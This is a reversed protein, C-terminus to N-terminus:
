LSFGIVCVDDVQEKGGKWNLFFSELAEKQEQPKLHAIGTLQQKFQKTMMKKGEPGGFQDAYGDTSLIVLDNQKLSYEHQAYEQDIPTYGGIAYKTPKIEIVEGNRVIYLPRNAGAYHLKNTDLDLRVFALDMGDRQKNTETHQKLADKIANNLQKLVTSPTHGTNDHCIQQLMNIGVMSMLAGPVGHGTCDACAIYFQQANNNQKFWFFDGSVVDKPLYLVFSSRVAKTLIGQEPLFTTQIGKAYEISQLIEQKKDSIIKNQGQLQSNIKKRLNNQKYLLFAIVIIVLGIVILLVIYITKRKNKLENIEAIQKLQINGAESRAYNYDAELNSITFAHLDKNIKDNLENYEKQVEFLRKHDKLSKYIETYGLLCDKRLELFDHYVSYRYAFDLNKLAEKSENLAGKSIGIRLICAAINNSDDKFITKAQEYYFISSKFDKSHYFLQGLNNYLPAVAGFAKISKCTEIASNFYKVASDFDSSRKEREYKDTYFSGLANETRLMIADSKIEKGIQMAMYIYSVDKYNKQQIAAQWGLNYASMATYFKSKISDSFKYGAYYYKFSEQYNARNFLVDGITNYLKAKKKKLKLKNALNFAIKSAEMVENFASSGYEKCFDNLLGVKISDDPLAYISDRVKLVSPATQSTLSMGM